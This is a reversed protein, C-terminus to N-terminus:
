KKQYVYGIRPVTVSKYVDLQECSLRKSYKISDNIMPSTRTKRLIYVGDFHKALKMIRHNM